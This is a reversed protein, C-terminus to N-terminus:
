KGTVQRISDFVFMFSEIPEIEGRKVPSVFMFSRLMCTVPM